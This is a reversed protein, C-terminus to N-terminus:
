AMVQLAVTAFPNVQGGAMRRRMRYERSHLAHSKPAPKPADKERGAAWLGALMGGNNTRPQHWAQVYYRTGRGDSLIKSVRERSAGTREALQAVTLGDQEALVSDIAARVWSFTTARRKGRKGLGLLEARYLAARWSRGPLRPMNAKLSGKGKWIRTLEVDEEPTWLAHSAPRQGLKLDRIRTQIAAASRGPLLHLCDALRKDSGHIEKVIRDEAVTWFKRSM